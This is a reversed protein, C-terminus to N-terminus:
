DTRDHSGEVYHWCAVDKVTGLKQMACIPMSSSCRPLFPCGTSLTTLSPPSGKISELPYNKGGGLRPRSALLAKTYPHRPNKVIQEVSGREIIEGAYMVLVRDCIRELVGFDHTILLISTKNHQMIMKMLHIIQTQTTADLATTPEDAILLKPKKAIAIAIMVRQCMGGSLEHPYASYCREVDTLGVQQLLDYVDKKELSSSVERIQAGIKMTPNLSAHPNQFIIGIEQARILQKEKESKSFLEEGNLFASGQVQHNGLCALANATLSKGCGSEGVIGVCQQHGIEFSINKVAPIWKQNQKVSIHLDRVHLLPKNM